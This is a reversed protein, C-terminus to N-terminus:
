IFYPFYTYMFNYLIYITPNFHSSSHSCRAYFTDLIFIKSHRRRRRRRRRRCVHAHITQSVREVSGCIYNFSSSWGSDTVM